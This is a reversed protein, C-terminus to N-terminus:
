IRDLGAGLAELQAGSYSTPSLEYVGLPRLLSRLYEAYAM